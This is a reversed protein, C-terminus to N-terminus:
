SMEGTWVPFNPDGGLYMVGVKAGPNPRYNGAFTATVILSATSPHAPTTGVPYHVLSVATNEVHWMFQIYDGPELNLIYNWAAVTHGNTSGHRAPVSIFGSSGVVDVGNKRIWVTVDQVGSSTNEFQGSWALNFTGYNDFTIKSNDVIRVGYSYDTTDLTMVYNQLASAATQDTFDQFSGYPFEYILPAGTMATAWNTEASGTVQPVQLTVRGRKEPDDSNIVIGEYLGYFRQDFNM